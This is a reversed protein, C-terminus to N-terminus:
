HLLAPSCVCGGEWVHWTCVREGMGSGEVRVYGCASVNGGVRRCVGVRMSVHVPIGLGPCQVQLNVSFPYEKPLYKPFLRGIHYLFILDM